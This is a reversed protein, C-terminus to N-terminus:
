VWCQLRLMLHITMFTPHERKSHFWAHRYYTHASTRTCSTMIVSIIVLWSRAKALELGTIIEYDYPLLILALLSTLVLAGSSSTARRLLPWALATCSHEGFSCGQTRIVRPRCVLVLAYAKTLTVPWTCQIVRHFFITCFFVRVVCYLVM